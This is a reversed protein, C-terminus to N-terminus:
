GVSVQRQQQLPMQAPYWRLLLLLLPVAAAHQKLAWLVWWMHCHQQRQVTLQVATM